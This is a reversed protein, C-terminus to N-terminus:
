HEEGPLAEILVTRDAVTGVIRNSFEVVDFLKRARGSGSRCSAVVANPGRDEESGIRYVVDDDLM